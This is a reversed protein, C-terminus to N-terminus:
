QHGEFQNNKPSRSPEYRAYVAIGEPRMRVAVSAGQEELGLIIHKAEADDEYFDRFLHPKDEVIIVSPLGYDQAKECEHKRGFYQEIIKKKVQRWPKKNPKKKELIPSIPKGDHTIIQIRKRWGRFTKIRYGGYISRKYEIRVKTRTLRLVKAAIWEDKYPIIVTDGVKIKGYKQKPNPM